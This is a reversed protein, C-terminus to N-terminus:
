HLRQIITEDRCTKLFPMLITGGTGRASSATEDSHKSNSNVPHDTQQKSDLQVYDNKRIQALIYLTVIQIHRNRFTVLQDICANYAHLLESEQQVQESSTLKKVFHNINYKDIGLIELFQRHKPPMYFRMESIFERTHESDHKVDFFVDFAAILSSQAASAGHLFQRTESVGEYLLGDPLSPNGKWGAVFHRVRNYFIYPDVEDFTKVLTAFITKQISHIAKLENVLENVKEKSAFYQARLMHKLAKAGHFELEIIVLYFNAEDIGSLFCNLMAINGLEIPKEVDFRKWNSLAILSHTLVPPRNARKTIEVWPIALCSPIYTSIPKEGWVFAHSLVALVLLARHLESEDLLDNQEIHVIKLRSLIASRINKAHLYRTLDMMLLEWCAFKSSLPLHPLPDVSPLFGRNIDVSYSALLRAIHHDINEDLLLHECPHPLEPGYYPLLSQRFLFTSDDHGTSVDHQSVAHAQCEDNVLDM